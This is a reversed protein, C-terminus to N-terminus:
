QDTYKRKKMIALVNSRILVTYLLVLKGTKQITSGRQRDRPCVLYIPFILNLSKRLLDIGGLRRERVSEESESSFSIKSM